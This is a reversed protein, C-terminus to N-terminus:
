AKKKEPVYAGKTAYCGRTQAKKINNVVIEAQLWKLEDIAKQIIKVARITNEKM